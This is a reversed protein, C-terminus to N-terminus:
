NLGKQSLDSSLRNKLDKFLAYSGLNETCKSNTNALCIFIKIHIKHQRFDPTLHSYKLNKIYLNYKNKNYEKQLSVSRLNTLM